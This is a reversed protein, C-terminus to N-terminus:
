RRKKSSKKAAKKKPAPTKAPQPVSLDVPYNILPRFAPRTEVTGDENTKPQGDDGPVPVVVEVGLAAQGNSIQRLQLKAPDIELFENNDLLFIIKM